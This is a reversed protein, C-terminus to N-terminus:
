PAARYAGCPDDVKKLQCIICPGVHSEMGDEHNEWPHGCECISTSKKKATTKDLPMKREREKTERGRVAVLPRPASDWGVEAIRNVMGVATLGDIVRTDQLDATRSTSERDFRYRDGPLKRAVANMVHTNLEPDNTHRIWSVRPPGDDDPPAGGRLAKMLSEYDEIAHKNGTTRDVVICHPGDNGDSLWAMTDEAKSKDMVVAIIPNRAHIEMFAEKVEDPHLMSGDRPPVLIVPRDVLRYTPDRNWMPVIATTDLLWAFDAGVLVPVGEPIEDDTAAREWDAEAIGAKSSRAPINCTKRLWDDSYDLTPRAFKERLSLKTIKRLPNAAKVVEINKAAELNPVSYEHLVTTATAARLYCQTRRQKRSALRHMTDRTKEFDHGPNGATSIMVSQGGRKDNKGAWTRYLALNRMRHGEDCLSLTHITGDATDEDAAYVKMGKGGNHVHGIQRTGGVKFPGLPNMQASYKLGPTREIFGVAQGFLIEAQDRSSAGVPVWPYYTNDLHYLGVEAILTSKSNGEPVLLWCESYGDFLDEIFALQWAEPAHCKGDEFVLQSCWREFHDITFPIGKITGPWGLETAEPPKAKIAAARIRRGGTSRPRPRRPYTEQPPTEVFPATTMTAGAEVCRLCVTRPRGKGSYPIETNCINCYTPPRPPRKSPAIRARHIPTVNSVPAPRYGRVRVCSGRTSRQATTLWATMLRTTTM